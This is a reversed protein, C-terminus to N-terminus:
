SAEGPHWEGLVGERERAPDHAEGGHLGVASCASNQIRSMHQQVLLPRIVPNQGYKDKSQHQGPM